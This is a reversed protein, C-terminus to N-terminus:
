ESQQDENIGHLGEELRKPRLVYYVGFLAVIISILYFGFTLYVALDAALDAVEGAACALHVANRDGRAIQEHHSQHAARIVGGGVVHFHRDVGRLHFETRLKM